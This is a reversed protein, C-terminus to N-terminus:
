RSGTVHEPRKRTHGIPVSALNFDRRPSGELVTVQAMCPLGFAAGNTNTIM